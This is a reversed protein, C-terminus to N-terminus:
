AGANTQPQDVTNAGLLDRALWENRFAGASDFQDVVIRFDKLGPYIDENTAKDLPNYKGWHCRGDFLRASAPGIFNAFQYFGDRDNPWQYSIFSIAYWDEDSDHSASSMSILADDNQVRRFCIPYHHVYCGKLKLFKEFLDLRQIQNMIEDSEPMESGGCQKLVQIVFDTADQIKSKQVFLEIEIHRFLEHEMTLMAHSDDVVKWKRIIILPLIRRFFLRIAWAQKLLKALVYMAIHLGIDIVLFCYSRYVAALPSRPKDSEVRHHGFFTWSWPMLYFQQQPFENELKLVANLTPHLLAHEEVNYKPRCRFTISVVIGLLGMGCRAARLNVGSDITSLIPNGSHDYHAVELAQVYHSLSHKGSGHTATATAGAVTQEDILGVSPLTLGFGSLKALLHKIKCGAGVTVTSSETDVNVFDIDRLQIIVDDTQIADSWAHLSGVPRIKKGRHDGLIKLVEDGSLPQYFHKPKVCVNKGFNWVTQNTPM